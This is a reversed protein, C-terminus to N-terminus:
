RPAEERDIKQIADLLEQRNFPKLLFGNAGSTKTRHAYDLASVMLVPVNAVKGNPHNRVRDLLEFGDVEPLHVDLIVLDPQRGEIERALDQWNAVQQADYGDLKLLTALLRASADQDDVILLRKV